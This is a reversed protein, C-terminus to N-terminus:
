PNPSPAKWEGTIRYENKGVIRIDQVKYIQYCSDPIYYLKERATYIWNQVQNEVTISKISGNDALQLQILQTKLDPEKSRYTMSGSTSDISYSNAWASKNIDAEIFPAFENKWNTIRVSQSETSGNIEVTKFIESSDSELRDIELNFYEELSFYPQLNTSPEKAANGTGGTGSCALFFGSCALLLFVLRLGNIFSICIKYNMLSRGIFIKM